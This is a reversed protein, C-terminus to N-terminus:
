RIESLARGLAECGQQQAPVVGRPVAAVGYPVPQALVLLLHLLAGHAHADHDAWPRAFTWPEVGNFRLPDVPLTGDRFRIAQQTRVFEFRPDIGIITTLSVCRTMGLFTVQNHVLRLPLGDSNVGRSLLVPTLDDHGDQSHGEAPRPLLPAAPRKSVKLRKVHRKRM